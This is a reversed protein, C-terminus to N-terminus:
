FSELQVRDDWLVLLYALLHVDYVMVGVGVCRFVLCKFGYKIGTDAAFKVQNCSYSVM